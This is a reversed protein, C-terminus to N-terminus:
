TELSQTDRQDIYQPGGRTTHRAAGLGAICNAAEQANMFRAERSVALMLSEHAGALQLGMKACALLTKAVNQPHMHAAVRQVAQLLDRRGEDSLELEM